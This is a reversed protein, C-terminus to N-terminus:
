FIININEFENWDSFIIFYIKVRKGLFGFESVLM